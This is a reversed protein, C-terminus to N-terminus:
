NCQNKRYALSTVKRVRQLDQKMKSMLPLFNASFLANLTRTVSIGLYKFGSPSLKFPIDSHTLQSAAASIRYCKSKTINGRFGSFSDFRQFASLISSIFVVPDSVYLLVDDAYLLLKFETGLRSIGSFISSSRLFISLPEIALTFLLPFLPCLPRTGGSLSFFASNFAMLPNAQVLLHIFSLYGHFLYM